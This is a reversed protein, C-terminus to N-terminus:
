EKRTSGCGSTRKGHRAVNGSKGGQLTREAFQRPLAINSAGLLQRRGAKRNRRRQGRAKCRGLIENSEICRECGFKEVFGPMRFRSPAVDRVAFESFRQRENARVSAGTKVPSIDGGRNRCIHRRLATRNWSTLKGTIPWQARLRALRREAAGGGIKGRRLNGRAIKCACQQGVHPTQPRLVRLEVHSAANSHRRCSRDVLEM